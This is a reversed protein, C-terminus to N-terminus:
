VWDLPHDTCIGYVQPIYRKKGLEVTIGNPIYNGPYCWARGIETLTFKDNEHWFCNLGLELMKTFAEKNKAHCWLRNDELFAQNIKHEPLDHGLYWQGYEYWVDIEVDFGKDLAARIYLPANEQEPIKGDLNGRHSIIKM